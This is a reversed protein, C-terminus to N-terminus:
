AWHIMPKLLNTRLLGFVINVAAVTRGSLGKVLNFIDSDGLALIDDYVFISYELIRDIDINKVREGDEKERRIM